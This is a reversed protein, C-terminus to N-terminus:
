AFSMVYFFGMLLFTERLTIEGAPLPRKPKNIADNELDTWQNLVNSGANLAAALLAGLGIWLLTHDPFSPVAELFSKGERHAIAGLATVAGSVMGILPPLLTFPRTMRTYVGLRSPSDSASDSM